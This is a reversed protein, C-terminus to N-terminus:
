PNSSASQTDPRTTMTSAITPNRRSMIIEEDCVILDGSSEIIKRSPINDKECVYVLLKGNEITHMIMGFLLKKGLGKGQFIKKIMISIESFVENDRTIIAAGAIEDNEMIGFFRNENCYDKILNDPFRPYIDKAQDYNLRIPFESKSFPRVNNIIYRKVSLLKADCCRSLEYEIPSHNISLNLSANKSISFIDENKFRTKILPFSSGFITEENRSDSLYINDRFLGNNRYEYELYTDTNTM